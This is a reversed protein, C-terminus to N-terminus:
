PQMIMIFLKRKIIMYCKVQKFLGLPVNIMREIIAFQLFVKVLIVKENNIKVANSFIRPKNEENIKFSNDNM